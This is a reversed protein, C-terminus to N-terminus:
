WSEAVGPMFPADEPDPSRQTDLDAIDRVNRATGTIEELYGRLDDLFANTLVMVERYLPQTSCLAAREFFAPVWPLLHLDMFRAADQAPVASALRCLHSVFQLEHVVHDDARVRWNPVSIGYHEYWDRADFMPMQRELKDETMWVSGSPAARYAHTLFIDAYEAALLELVEADPTPGLADLAASLADIAAASRASTSLEHLGAVVGHKHLQALLDADIERDHFRILVDLGDAFQVLRQAQEPTLAAPAKQAAGM